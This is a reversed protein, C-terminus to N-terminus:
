TSTETELTRDFAAKTLAGLGEVLMPLVLLRLGLRVGAGVIRATLPSFLGGGLIFGIGFTLAVTRGPHQQTQEALAGSWAPLGSSTKMTANAM